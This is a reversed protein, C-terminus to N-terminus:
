VASKGYRRSVIKLVWYCALLAGLVTGGWLLIAPLLIFAGVIFDVWSSIGSLMSAAASHMGALPHWDALLSTPQSSPTLLIGISSMAVDHSMVNMEAQLQEIRGRVDSLKQTVNLTEDITGARKMIELYQQEEAKMNRLRAEDDTWEHTVDVVDLQEHTVNAAVRKFEALAQELQDAPVRLHLEGNARDWETSVLRVQDVAGQYKETIQRLTAAAENVNSVTLELEAKRILKKDTAVSETKAKAEDTQMSLTTPAYSRIRGVQVAHDAGSRSRLLNPVSIAFIM